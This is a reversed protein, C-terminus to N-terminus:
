NLEDLDPVGVTQIPQLIMAPTLPIMDEPDESLYTIPRSNIVSECDCLLSVMEEYFLSANGLVRRLLKKVMQIMREWFGGWWPAAPPIFKWTIKEISTQQQITNWDLSQLLNEAGVFNKANDSYVVKPRGRRTIFRRLSLLFAKTSLSLVLELHIARFVACTYLVIWCKEGGKLHLPGVLDVGTIEFVSAEKVRDEPLGIPATDGNRANHRKCRVCKNIVSRVTRRGNIIWFRERLNALLIQVGAHLYKLHNEKILLEVLRHKSPLLIPYKFDESDDRETLKTKIRFLGDDKFINLSKLGKLHKESSFERQIVKIIRKEAREVEEVTLDGKTSNKNSAKANTVFRFLWATVRVTKLYSSFSSLYRKEELSANILIAAKKLKEKSVAEEDTVVVSQPWNDKHM